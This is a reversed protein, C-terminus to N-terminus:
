VEIKNETVRIWKPLNDVNEVYPKGQADLRFVLTEKTDPWNEITVKDDYLNAFGGNKFSIKTEGEPGISTWEPYREPLGDSRDRICM